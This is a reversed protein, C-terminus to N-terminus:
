LLIQEEVIYAASKSHDIFNSEDTQLATAIQQGEASSMGEILAQESEFWVEAVGDFQAQM